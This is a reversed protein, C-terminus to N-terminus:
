RDADDIKARFHHLHPFGGLDRESEVLIIISSDEAALVYILIHSQHSVNVPASVLSPEITQQIEILGASGEQHWTGSTHGLTLSAGAPVLHSWSSHTQLDVITDFIEEANLDFIKSREITQM